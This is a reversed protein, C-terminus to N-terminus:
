KGGVKVSGPKNLKVHVKYTKSYKKDGGTTHERKGPRPKCGGGLVTIKSVTAPGDYGFKGDFTVTGKDYSFSVLSYRGKQDISVGDDLYLEGKAKGHADLAVLLEFDQKRLETTTYTSNARAPIIAGSRILLPITTTDQEIFKHTAAEGLIPKHSYWDYFTDDPLYVEVSTAGQATVPAVLVSDGYFYQLELAWTAKDEPYKYFIPQVAPRGDDNARYMATYIYDLLRYRIDIAKRASSAVTDWVYFEQSIQGEANHNRFFTSFAALAAWRACLEETTDGGFGCADSGVMSFQFLGTFALMARISNRYMDWTSLNDGLWHGVKTGAGSFTSRTIILPRLGPRRSLMADHSATSMMSGYMNHTDYMALGNQHILNTNVTHNSIGGKDANWDDRYAAKNHIAYKPYLLDRGPLGKQDGAARREAQPLSDHVAPQPVRAELTPVDREEVESRKCTGPPQFDCPWGPLPRPPQRVPPAPPPFGKAAEYPNDCPFNCPFNSPENMDIWLADIDVGTDKNFFSQFQGDWYKQINKSFWDPFVTVGPWVVGLWLSGNDRRLFIDDKVGAHLPPYDQYAVAPDVMVIYHQDNKHLHSVLERMKKLPFRDPDLSFVRRRDMYDIDTWMTELPIKALSYNQVVEAVNYADQYGYRCQHFGLGWYPQLAPTGAIKGYQKVVDTPSPGAVFWFDFVGGLTNYELYQKGSSTQDIFIDMGNSNLLFVGHSGGKRQELYFPHTGYLNSNNPLGYSDQNWMTRIYNKTQLRLPDSHEGLGYLYPDQPLSTRLRLYQSEFVLSAASTDFLIEKSDARSVKFSFPSETYDFKLKNSGASSKGGPRKFVSEPVQYVQNDKDQITVHIRDDTEYSVELTLHKLDTGYANCAKGALTLDAKLGNGTKKVNSAKYGPCADLNGGNRSSLATASALGACVLGSWFRM